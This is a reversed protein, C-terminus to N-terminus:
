MSDAENKRIMVPIKNGEYVNVIVEVEGLTVPIEIDRNADVDKVKTDNQKYLIFSFCDEIMDFEILVTSTTSSEEFLFDKKMDRDVDPFNPDRRWTHLLWDKYDYKNRQYCFEVTLKYPRGNVRNISDVASWDTIGNDALDLRTLSVMGSLPQLDTIKNDALSLIRLSTIKEIGSVDSINCSSLDLTTLETMNKIVSIDSLEKNGSLNLIKLKTLGSLASIDTLNCSTMELETLNTLNSIASVDNLKVNSNLILSDLGTLYKLDSLTKIRKKRIVLQKVSKIEDLTLSDDSEKGLEKRVAAEIDAEAWEITGDEIVIDDNSAQSNGPNEIKNGENRGDFIVFKCIVFVMITVAAVVSLLLTNKKKVVKIDSNVAVYQNNNPGMNYSMGQGDSVDYGNMAIQQGQSMSNMFGVAQADQLYEENDFIDSYLESINCYLTGENPALGKSLANILYDKVSSPMMLKGTEKYCTLNNLFRPGCVIKYIIKCIDQIDNKYTFRKKLDAEPLIGFGLLIVDNNANIVINNLDINGHYIGREHISCLSYVIPQLIGLVEYVSIRGGRQEIFEDLTIHEFYETIVYATNNCWIADYTWVIGFMSGLEILRNSEEIYYNKFTEFYGQKSSVNLQIDNSVTSDRKIIDKPYCERISVKMNAELDWGIYILEYDNQQLVKGVLYRDNLISAIKLYEKGSYFWKEDFGCKPCPRDTYQLFSMCGKCLHEVGINGM